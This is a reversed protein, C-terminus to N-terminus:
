SSLVVFEAENGGEKYNQKGNSTNFQYLLEILSQLVPAVLSFSGIVSHLLLATALVLTVIAVAGQTINANSVHDELWAPV